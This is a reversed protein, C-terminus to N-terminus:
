FAFLEFVVITMMGDQAFQNMQDTCPSDMITTEEIEKTEGISTEKIILALLIEMTGTTTTTLTSLTLTVKKRLVM